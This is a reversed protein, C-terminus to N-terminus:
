TVIVAVPVPVPAPVVPLPLRWPRIGAVQVHAVQRGMDRLRHQLAQEAAAPLYTNQKTTLM